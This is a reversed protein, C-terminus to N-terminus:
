GGDNNHRKEKSGQSRGIDSPFTPGHYSYHRQQRFIPHLSQLPVLGEDGGHAQNENEEDRRLIQQGSDSDRSGSYKGFPDAEEDAM